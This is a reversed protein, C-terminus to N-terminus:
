SLQFRLAPALFLAAGASCGAAGGVWGWGGGGELGGGPDHLVLLLAVLQGFPPALTPGTCCCCCRRCRGARVQQDGLLPTLLALLREVGQSGLLLRVAPALQGVGRVAVMMVRRRSGPDAAAAELPALLLLLQRQADASGPELLLAEAAQRPLV